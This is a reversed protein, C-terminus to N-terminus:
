LCDWPFGQALVAQRGVEQLRQSIFTAVSREQHALEPNQIYYLLAAHPGAVRAISNEWATSATNHDEYCHPPFQPKGSESVETRLAPM